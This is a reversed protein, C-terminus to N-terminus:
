AECEVTTNDANAIALQDVDNSYSSSKEARCVKRLDKQDDKM